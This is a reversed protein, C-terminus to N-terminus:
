SEASGSTGNTKRTAGKHIIIKINQNPICQTELDTGSVYFDCRVQKRSFYHETMYGVVVVLAAIGNGLFNKYQIQRLISSPLSSTSPPVRSTPAPPLPQTSLLRFHSISPKPRHFNSSSRSPQRSQNILLSPISRRPIFTSSRILVATATPFSM